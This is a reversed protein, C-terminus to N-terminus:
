ARDGIFQVVINLKDHRFTRTYRAGDFRKTGVENMLTVITNLTELYEESKPSNIMVANLTDMLAEYDTM